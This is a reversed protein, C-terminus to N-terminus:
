RRMRSSGTSSKGCTAHTTPALFPDNRPGMGTRAVIKYVVTVVAGRLTYQATGSGPYGRPLEQFRSNRFRVQCPGNRLLIGAPSGSEQRFVAQIKACLSWGQLAWIRGSGHSPGLRRSWLPRGGPPGPPPYEGCSGQCAAGPAAPRPLPLMRAHGFAVGGSHWDRHCRPVRGNPARQGPFYWAGMVVCVGGPPGSAEKRPRRRRRDM